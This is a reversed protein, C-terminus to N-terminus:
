ETEEIFPLHSAEDAFQVPTHSSDLSLCAMAVVGFAL